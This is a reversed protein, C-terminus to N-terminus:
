VSEGVANQALMARALAFSALANSRKFIVLEARAGSQASAGALAAAEAIGFSGTARKVRESRESLRQEFANLQSANFFALPLQLTQALALLGNEASKSDISALGSLDSLSLECDILAADLLERLSQEPCDRRCGFGAIYLRRATNRLHAM